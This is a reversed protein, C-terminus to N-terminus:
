ERRGGPTGRGDGCAPAQRAATSARSSFWCSWLAPALRTAPVSAPSGEASSGGALAWRAPNGFSLATAPGCAGTTRPRRRSRVSGRKACRRDGVPSSAREGAATGNEVANLQHLGLWSCRHGESVVRGLGRRVLVWRPALGQGDDADAATEGAPDIRRGSVPVGQEPADVRDALHGLIPPLM